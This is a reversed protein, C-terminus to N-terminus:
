IQADPNQELYAALQSYTMHSPDAAGPKADGSAGPQFGKFQPPKPADKEAFLYGDSKKLASLQEELGSLKGDDGLAVKETDLLARVAKGNRAGAANLAADLASDLRLRALEAKHAKEQEANKKQLADIQQMLADADGTSKKLAELQKDRDSVSAKLAANEARLEDMQAKPVFGDLAAKVAAACKEALSADAGLALFDEKKM